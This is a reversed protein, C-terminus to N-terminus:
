DGGFKARLPGGLALLEDWSTPPKVGADAFMDTRYIVTRPGAYVAAGYNKDEWQGPDALGPLWTASNDFTGVSDSLDALGGAAAYQAVQTNGIELVDPPQDGPLAPTLKEGIGDWQQVQYQVTVGQHAAEFDKKLGAAVDDPLSGTMYCVTLTPPAAAAPASGTTSPASTGCGALLVVTVATLATTLRRIHM